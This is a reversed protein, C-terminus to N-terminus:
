LRTRARRRVAVYQDSRNAAERAAATRRRISQQRGASSARGTLTARRAIPGRGRRYAMLGPAARGDPYGEGECRPGLRRNLAVVYPRNEVECATHDEARPFCIIRHWNMAARPLAAAHGSAAYPDVSPAPLFTDPLFAYHACLIELSLPLLHQCRDPGVRTLDTSCDALGGEIISNHLRHALHWPVLKHWDLDSGEGVRVNRKWDSEFFGDRLREDDCQHRVQEINLGVIRDEFDAGAETILRRDQCLQCALHVADFQDCLEGLLSPLPQVTLIVGVDLELYTVPVVAPGLMCREFFHEHRRCWVENRRRQDVLQLRTPAHHNGDAQRLCLLERQDLFVSVPLHRRLLDQRHPEGHEFSGFFRCRPHRSRSSRQLRWPCPHIIPRSSTRADAFRIMSAVRRVGIIDAVPNFCAKGRGIVSESLSSSSCTEPDNLARPAMLLTRVRVGSSVLRPIM